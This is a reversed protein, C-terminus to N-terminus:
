NLNDNKPDVKEVDIVKKRAGGGGQRREVEEAVRRMMEGAQVRIRSIQRVVMVLGTGYLTLATLVGACGFSYWDTPGFLLVLLGGALFGFGIWGIVKLHM